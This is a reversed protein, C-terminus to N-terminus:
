EAEYANIGHQEEYIRKQLLYSETSAVAAQKVYGVVMLLLGFIVASSAVMLPGYEGDNFMEVIIVFAGLAAFIIGTIVFGSGASTSQAPLPKTLKNGM